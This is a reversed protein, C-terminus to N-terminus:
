VFGSCFAGTLIEFLGATSLLAGVNFLVFLLCRLASYHVSWLCISSLLLAGYLCLFFFFSLDSYFPLLMLWDYLSPVPLIMDGRNKVEWGLFTLLCPFKM